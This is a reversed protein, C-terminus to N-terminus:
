QSPHMYEYLVTRIADRLESISGNNQIDVDMDVDDLYHETPDASPTVSDREIRIRVLTTTPGLADRIHEFENPYRWDSIVHRLGGGALISAAVAEAYVNPNTARMTAAHQILLDRPTKQPDHHTQSSDTLPKNKTHHCHFTAVPIGTRTAVDHKLSDAFAHRQFGMEEVMLAAAADKGSGAWGSLLVILPKTQSHFM